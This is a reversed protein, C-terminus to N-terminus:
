ISSSLSPLERSCPSSFYWSYPCLLTTLEFIGTVSTEPPTLPLDLLLHRPSIAAITRHPQGPSGQFTHPRQLSTVLDVYYTMVSSLLHFAQVLLWCVSALAALQSSMPTSHYPLLPVWSLIGRTGRICPCQPSRLLLPARLIVWLPFLLFPVDYLTSGHRRFFAASSSFCRDLLALKSSSATFISVMNLTSIM